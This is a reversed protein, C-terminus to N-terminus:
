LRVGDDLGKRKRPRKPSLDPDVGLLRRAMAELPAASIGDLMRARLNLSRRQDTRRLYHEEAQRVGRVGRDRLADLVGDLLAEDAARGKTVAQGVGDVVAEWFSSGPHLRKLAELESVVRDVFLSGQRSDGLMKRLAGLVPAVEERWDDDLAPIVAEAVQQPEFATKDAREAFKKWAARMPLSKHPGDSM